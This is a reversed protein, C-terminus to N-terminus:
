ICTQRTFTKKQGVIQRLCLRAQSESSTGETLSEDPNWKAFDVLRQEDNGVYTLIIMSM